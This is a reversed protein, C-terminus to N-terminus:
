FPCGFSSGSLPKSSASAVSTSPSTIELARGAALEFCRFLSGAWDAADDPLLKDEVFVDDEVCLLLVADPAAVGDLEM